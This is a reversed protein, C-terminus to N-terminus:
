SIKWEDFVQFVPFLLNQKTNNFYHRFSEKNKSVLFIWNKIAFILIQCVAM